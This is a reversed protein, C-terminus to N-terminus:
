TPRPFTEAAAATAPETPVELDLRGEGAQWLADLGVRYTPYALEVGLAEKLLRNSARKNEAYFSRALPTLDADALEQEPPPPIGMLMAAYTVVDQPPAPADDAVNWARGRGPHAVAAAIARGVDEVHVRNFVQNKKVIRRATGRRLNVLANRSPGYIGALRLIHTKKGPETGIASWSREAQLRTRSRLTTPAPATSEDVWGGRRDGYVGITSLYVIIQRRSSRLIMRGYRSLVPDVSPGPPISILLVDAEMVRDAIAPDAHDPALVFTEIGDRLHAEAKEASRVTGAMSAFGSGFRDIFSRASYGLGFALLKVDLGGEPDTPHRSRPGRGM